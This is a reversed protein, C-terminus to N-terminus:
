QLLHSRLSLTPIKLYEPTLDNMIKYFQNLRRFTRRHDLAEWAVEDYFNERSRGKWDGSVALAAQYQTNELLKM